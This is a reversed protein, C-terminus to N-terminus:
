GHQRTMKPADPSRVCRGSTGASYLRSTEPKNGSAKARIPTARLSNELSANRASRSFLRGRNAVRLISAAAM